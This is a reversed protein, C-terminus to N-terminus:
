AVLVAESQRLYNLLAEIGIMRTIAAQQNPTKLTKYYIHRKGSDVIHLYGHELKWVQGAALRQLHEKANNEM